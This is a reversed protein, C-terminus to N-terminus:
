ANETTQTVRDDAICPRIDEFAQNRYTEDILLVVGTVYHQLAEDGGKRFRGGTIVLASM